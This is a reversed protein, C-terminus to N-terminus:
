SSARLRFIDLINKHSVLGIEYMLWFDSGCIGICGKRNVLIDTGFSFGYFEWALDVPDVFLLIPGVHNGYEPRIISILAGYLDLTPLLMVWIPGVHNGCSGNISLMVRKYLADLLM